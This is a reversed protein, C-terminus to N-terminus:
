QAIASDATTAAAVTSDTLLSDPKDNTLRLLRDSVMSSLQQFFPDGSKNYVAILDNALKVAEDKKGRRLLSRIHTEDISYIQSVIDYMNRQLYSRYPAISPDNSGQKVVDLLQM